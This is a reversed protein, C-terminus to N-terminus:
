SKKNGLKIFAILTLPALLALVLAVILLEKQQQAAALLILLAVGATGFLQASLMRDALAPGRVVSLIGLIFIALLAVAIIQLYITM